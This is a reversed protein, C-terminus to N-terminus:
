TGATVLIYHATLFPSITFRVIKTAKLKKYYRINTPCIKFIQLVSIEDPAWCDVVHHEKACIEYVNLYAISKQM